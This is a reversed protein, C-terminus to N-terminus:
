KAILPEGPRLGRFTRVAPSAASCVATASQGPLATLMPRPLPAPQVKPSKPQMAVVAWNAPPWGRKLPKPCGDQHLPM